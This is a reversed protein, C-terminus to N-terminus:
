PKVGITADREPGISIISIPLGTEQEIRTIYDRAQSPLDDLRRASSTSARWGAWDEYIPSAISWDFAVSSLTGINNYGTCVPITEFSDLVDIKTMALETFGTVGSAWTLAPVDLWGCRRPRGTTAGFEAGTQRLRDLDAGHLETPLPGDGVSTTYAKFVGIVRSVAQPPVGAGAAMGAPTPSSSTVFPYAGWDLDRMVGLQGELLISRDEALARLVPEATDGIYPLLLPIVPEIEAIVDDVSIPQLGYLHVLLVNAQELAMEIRQRLRDKSRLDGARVGLRGAKDAYAPAIGRGTSGVRLEAPRREDQVSDLLRHYSLILHARESILLQSTDVGADALGTMEKAIDVPDLVVGPGLINQARASFMGSPLGHLVFKGNSNVITHGANPGGQCRIVIDADQALVDVIKGKGEDGWQAGAVITVSM